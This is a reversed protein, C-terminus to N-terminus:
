RPGDVGLMKPWEAMDIAGMEDGQVRKKRHTEEVSAPTREGEPRGWNRTQRKIVRPDNPSGGSDVRTLGSTDTAPKKVRKGEM